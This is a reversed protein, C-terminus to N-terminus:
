KQLHEDSSALSSRSEKEWPLDARQELLSCSKETVM